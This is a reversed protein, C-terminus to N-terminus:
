RLRVVAYAPDPSPEERLDPEDFLETRLAAPFVVRDPDGDSVYREAPNREFHRFWHQIHDPVAQIRPIHLFDTERHNPATAPGGSVELIAEHRYSTGEFTGELVPGLEKPYAGGPPNFVRVRYGAVAERIAKDALALQRVTEREDIQPLIAHWLTHNCIEYGRRALYQLKRQRLDPQGFLDNPPDAGPMVCFVAARGFDPHQDVFAELIGLASTPDVKLEGDPGATAQFQTRNSDDFTLVVPTKGAPVRVRNDLLDHLGVLYYGHRHLHELDKRFNARTRTWRLEEDGVHHYQLVMIKGLENPRIESYRPAPTPTPAATPVATPAATRSGLAGAPASVAGGPGDEGGGFSWAGLVVTLVFLHSGIRRLAQPPRVTM